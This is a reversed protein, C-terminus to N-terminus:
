AFCKRRRDVILIVPSYFVIIYTLEFGIITKRKITNCLIEITIPPAETGLM